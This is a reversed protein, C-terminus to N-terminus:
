HIRPWVSPHVHQVAPQCGCIKHM